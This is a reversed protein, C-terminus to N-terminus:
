LSLQAHFVTLFEIVTERYPSERTTWHNPSWAEMVPLRPKIGAQPVFIWCATCHPCFNFFFFIGLLDLRRNGSLLM